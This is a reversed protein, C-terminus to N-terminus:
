ALMHKVSDALEHRQYVLVLIALTFSTLLLLTSRTTNARDHEVEEDRKTVVSLMLIVGAVFAIVALLILASSFHGAHM